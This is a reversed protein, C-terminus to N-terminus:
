LRGLIPNSNCRSLGFTGLDAWLRISIAPVLGATGNLAFRSSAFGEYDLHQGTM